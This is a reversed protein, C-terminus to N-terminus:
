IRRHARRDRPLCSAPSIQTPRVLERSESVSWPRSRCILSHTCEVWLRGEARILQQRGTGRYRVPLRGSEAAQLIVGLGPDAALGRNSIHILSGRCCASKEGETGQKQRQVFADRKWRERWRCNWRVNPQRDVHFVDGDIIDKVNIPCEFQRGRARLKGTARRHLIVLWPTLLAKLRHRASHHATIRVGNQDIGRPYIHSWLRNVDINTKSRFRLWRCLRTHLLENTFQLFEQFLVWRDRAQHPISPRRFVQRRLDFLGRGQVAAFPAPEQHIQVNVDDHGSEQDCGPVTANPPFASFTSRV